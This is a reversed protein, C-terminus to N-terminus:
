PKRHVSNGSIATSNTLKATGAGGLAAPNLGHHRADIHSTATQVGVTTPQVPLANSTSQSPVPAAKTTPAAHNLATQGSNTSNQKAAPPRGNATQPQQGQRLGVGNHPQGPETLVRKREPKEVAKTYPQTKMRNTTIHHTSHIVLGSDLRATAPPSAATTQSEPQSARAMGSALLACGIMLSLLRRDTM